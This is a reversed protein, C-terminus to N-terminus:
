KAAIVEGPLYPLGDVEIAATATNIIRAVDGSTLLQHRGGFDFLLQMDTKWLFMGQYRAGILTNVHAPAPKKALFFPSLLQQPQRIELPATKTVLPQAAVLTAPEFTCGVQLSLSFLWALRHCCCLLLRQWDNAPVTTQAKNVLQVRM